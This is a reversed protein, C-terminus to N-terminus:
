LNPTHTRSDTAAPPPLTQIRALATTADRALKEMPVTERYRNPLEDIAALAARYAEVAERIRGAKVLIDGRRVLWTERRPSHDMAVTIRALAADYDRREVELGISYDVLSIVPGLRAIGADLAALVKASEAGPTAAILKARQIFHEPRPRPAREIGTAYDAAGAAPEGRAARIDGRLFWGEAESPVKEVYRDILPLAKESAGSEFFTRARFYDVVAFDPQLGGAAIFDAEARAWEQHHRYLEGRRILLDADAKKEIEESLAQILMMDDGHAHLGAGSNWVAM